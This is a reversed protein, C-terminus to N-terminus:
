WKHVNWNRTIFYSVRDVSLDLLAGLERLDSITEYEKMLKELEDKSFKRPDPIIILYDIVRYPAPHEKIKEGPIRVRYHFSTSPSPDWEWQVKGWFLKEGYESGEKTPEAVFFGDKIQVSVRAGVWIDICPHNLIAKGSINAPRLEALIDPGSKEEFIFFRNFGPIEYGIMEIPAELSNRGKKIKVQFSQTEYSPATVTLLWEGPELKTFTYVALGSGSQYYGRITRNQIRATFDWVWSRSVADLVQFDLTTGYQATKIFVCAAIIGLAVIVSIFVLIKRM